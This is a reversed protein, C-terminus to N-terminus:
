RVYGLTAYFAFGRETLAALEKILAIDPQVFNFSSKGQMRGFLEDSMPSLLEPNTYIPMLSYSVFNRGRRVGGFFIPGHFQAVSEGSLMYTTATDSTVHLRAAYPAFLLKLAAFTQELHRVAARM